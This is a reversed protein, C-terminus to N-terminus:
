IDYYVIHNKHAEESEKRVRDVVLKLKEIDNKLTEFCENLENDPMLLYTSGRLACLQEILKHGAHNIMNNYLEKNNDDIGKGIETFMSHIENYITNDYGILPLDIMNIIQKLEGIFNMLDKVNYYPYLFDFEVKEIREEFEPYDKKLESFVSMIFICKEDFSLDNFKNNKLKSAFSNKRSNMAASDVIIYIIEAFLIPIQYQKDKVQFLKIDINLNKLAPSVIKYMRDYFPGSDEGYYNCQSIIEEYDYYYKNPNNKVFDKNMKFVEFINFWM